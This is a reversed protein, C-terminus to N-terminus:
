NQGSHMRYFEEVAAQVGHGKNGDKLGSLVGPETTPPIYPLNPNQSLERLAEERAKAKLVEFKQKEAAENAEDIKDKAFIQYATNLDVQNKRATEYLGTIDLKEGFRKFHDLGLEYVNGITYLGRQEILAQREALMQEVQEKTLGSPAPPAERKMTRSIEDDDDGAPPKTSREAQLRELEAKAELGEAIAAQNEAYWVDLREKHASTQNALRNFEDQKLMYGGLKELITDKKDAPMGDLLTKLYEDNTLVEQAREKPALTKKAM